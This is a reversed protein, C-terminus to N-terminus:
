PEKITDLMKKALIVAGEEPKHKIIHGDDNKYHHVAKPNYPGKTQNVASRCFIVKGNILIQVTIM